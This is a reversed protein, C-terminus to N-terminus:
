QYSQIVKDPTSLFFIWLRKTCGLATELIKKKLYIKIVLRSFGRKNM